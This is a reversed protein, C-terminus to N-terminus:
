GRGSSRTPRVGPTVCGHRRAGGGGGAGSSPLQWAQPNGGCATPTTRARRAPRRLLRVPFLAPLGGFKAHYYPSKTLCVAPVGLALSFVAAHYSGTVIARCGAAAAALAEPAIDDLLSTPVALRVASFRVSPLSTPTQQM